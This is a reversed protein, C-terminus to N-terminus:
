ATDPRQLVQDIAHLTAVRARHESSRDKVESRVRDRLGLIVHRFGAESHPEIRSNTAREIWNVDDRRLGPDM